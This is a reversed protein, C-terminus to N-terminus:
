GVQGARKKWLYEIHQENTQLTVNKEGKLVDLRIRSLLVVIHAQHRIRPPRVAQEHITPQIPEFYEDDADEEVDCGVAAFTDEVVSPGELPKPAEESSVTESLINYQFWKQEAEAIRRRVVESITILKSAATSKACLLVVGPLITPDWASFRGLHELARDVHRSISTSPMVSMSKVQFKSDLKALLPRYVETYPSAVPSQTQTQFDPARRKQPRPANSDDPSKRKNAPPNPASPRMTDQAAM